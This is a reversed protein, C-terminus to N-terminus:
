IDGDKEAVVIWTQPDQNEAFEADDISCQGGNMFAGYAEELTTAESFEYVRYGYVPIKVIM